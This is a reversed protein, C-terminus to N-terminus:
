LVSGSSVSIRKKINKEFEYKIRTPKGTKPDIISVNSIHVPLEMEEIKGPNEQSPKRHKKVINIGRVKVKNIPKLVQIIEGSKGKDKGSIVMVQDGKKLKFKKMM